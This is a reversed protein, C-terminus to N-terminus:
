LRLKSAEELQKIKKEDLKIDIGEIKPVSLYNNIINKTMVEILENHEKEKDERTKM